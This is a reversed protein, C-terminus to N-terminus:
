QMAELMKKGEEKLAADNATRNPLKVMRNLVELAKAPKNAAQYAKALDSYNQVFYPELARCKELHVIASDLSAPPLGGHLTKLATKKMWGLSTMEYHWRGEIYNARAHNPDAAVAKDAFQKTQKIYVALKKNETEIAALRDNALALVYNAGASAANARGAQEAYALAQTYYGTKANKDAQKDGISVSLEAAKTLAALQLSDAAIVAKYKDLAATEKLQKEFNDAEKLLLNVDQARLLFPLLLCVLFGTKKIMCSSNTISTM